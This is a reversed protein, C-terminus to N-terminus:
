APVVWFTVYPDRGDRGPRASVRVPLSVDKGSPPALEAPGSVRTAGYRPNDSAIFADFTHVEVGQRNVYSRPSVEVCKGSLVLKM